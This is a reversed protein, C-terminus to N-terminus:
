LRGKRVEREPTALKKWSGENNAEQKTGDATFCKPMGKPLDSDFEPNNRSGERASEGGPPDRSPPLSRFFPESFPSATFPTRESGAKPKPPAGRGTGRDSEARPYAYGGRPVPNAQPACIM